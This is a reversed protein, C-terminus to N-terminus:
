LAVLLKIFGFNSVTKILFATPHQFFAGLSVYEMCAKQLEYKLISKMETQALM